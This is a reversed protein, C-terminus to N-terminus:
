ESKHWTLRLKYGEKDKRLIIPDVKLGIHELAARIAKIRNSAFDDTLNYLPSAFIHVEYLCFSISDPFIVDIWTDPYGKRWTLIVPMNPKSKDGWILAQEMEFTVVFNGMEFRDLVFFRGYEGMTCGWWWPNKLGYLYDEMCGVLLKFEYLTQFEYSWRWLGGFKARFEGLNWAYIEPYQPDYIM